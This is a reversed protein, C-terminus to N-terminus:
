RMGMKHLLSELARGDAGQEGREMELRGYCTIPDMEKHQGHKTCSTTVLLGTVAIATGDHM